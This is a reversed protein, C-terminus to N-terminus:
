RARFGWYWVVGSPSKARKSIWPRVAEAADVDDGGAFLACACGADREAAVGRVDREEGAVAFAACVHGEATVHHARAVLDGAHIEVVARDFADLDAHARLPEVRVLGAAQHEDAVLVRAEDRDDIAARVGQEIVAARRHPHGCREEAAVQEHDRAVRDVAVCVLEVQVHGALLATAHELVGDVHQAVDVVVDGAEEHQRRWALALVDRYGLDRAHAGARRAQAEVLGAGADVDGVVRAALQGHDVDGAIAHDFPDLEARGRDVHDLHVVVQEHGGGRRVAAQQLVARGCGVVHLGGGDRRAADVALAVLDVSRGTFGM